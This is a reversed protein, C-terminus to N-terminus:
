RVCECRGGGGGGPGRGSFSGISFVGSESVNEESVKCFINTIKKLYINQEKKLIGRIRGKLITTKEGERM